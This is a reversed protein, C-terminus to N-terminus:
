RDPMSCQTRPIEGASTSGSGIIREPDRTYYPQDKVGDKMVTAVQVSLEDASLAEEGVSRSLTVVAQDTM